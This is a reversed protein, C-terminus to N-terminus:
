DGALAMDLIAKLVRTAKAEEEFEEIRKDVERELEELLDVGTERRVQEWFRAFSSLMGPGMGEKLTLPVWDNSTSIGGKVEWKSLRAGKKVPHYHVIDLTVHYEVGSLRVRREIGILPLAPEEDM